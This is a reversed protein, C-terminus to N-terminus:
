FVDDPTGLQDIVLWLPLKYHIYASIVKLSGGSMIMMRCLGGKPNACGYDIQTADSFNFIVADSIRIAGPDVLPLERLKTIVDSEPIPRVRLWVL